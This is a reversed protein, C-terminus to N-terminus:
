EGPTGEDPPDKLFEIIVVESAPVVIEAIRSESIPIGGSLWQAERIRFHGFDSRGPWDAPWGYLRRGDRLSLIVYSLDNTAFATYWESPHSTEKTVGIKRLAAHLWDKNAAWAAILAILVAIAVSVAFDWRGTWGATPAGLASAAFEMGQGVARGVMTFVLAQVIKDLDGPKPHSTLSYFVAAAVFGPLQRPYVRPIKVCLRPPASSVCLPNKVCHRSPALACHHSFNVFPRSNHPFRM